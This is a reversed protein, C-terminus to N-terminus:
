AAGTGGDPPAAAFWGSPTAVAWGGARVPDEYYEPALLIQREHWAALTDHLERWSPFAQSDLPEGLRIRWRPRRGPVLAIPVVLAGTTAALRATGAAMEVPKGLFSTVTSGPLDMALVVTGGDTLVQELEQRSGRALISRSGAWRSIRRCYNVWYGYYGAPPAEFYWDGGVGHLPTLERALRVRGNLPGCHVLSVILGRGAARARDLHEMGDIPVRTLLRLRWSFETGEAMAAPHRGALEELRHAQSTGGVVAAMASRAADRKAPRLALLARYAFRVLVVAVPMPVLRHLLERGRLWDVVGGWPVPRTRHETEWVGSLEGAVTM